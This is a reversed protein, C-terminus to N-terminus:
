SRAESNHSPKDITEEKTGSARPSVINARREASEPPIRFTSLYKQPKTSPIPTLRFIDRCPPQSIHAKDGDTSPRSFPPTVINSRRAPDFDTDMLKPPKSSAFPSVAIKTRCTYGDASTLLPGELQSPVLLRRTARLSEAGSPTPAPLRRPLSPLPRGTPERPTRRRHASSRM